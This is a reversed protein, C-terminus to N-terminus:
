VWKGKRWVLPKRCGLCWAHYRTVEEGFCMQEFAFVNVVDAPLAARQKDTLRHLPVERAFHPVRPQM